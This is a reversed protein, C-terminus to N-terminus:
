RGQLATTKRTGRRPAQAKVRHTVSLGFALDSLVAEVTSFRPNGKESLSKYLSERGLSTGKSVSSMGRRARVVNRLAVLFAHHDEEELAASLYATAFEPDRLEDALTENFDKLM